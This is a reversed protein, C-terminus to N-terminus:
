YVSKVLKKISKVQGAESPVGPAEDQASITERTSFHHCAM